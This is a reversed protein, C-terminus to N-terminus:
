GKFGTKVGINTPIGVRNIKLFGSSIVKDLDGVFMKKLMEDTARDAFSAFDKM